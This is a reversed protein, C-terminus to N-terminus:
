ESMGIDRRVEKELAQLEKKKRVLEEFWEKDKMALAHEILEGYDKSAITRPQRYM